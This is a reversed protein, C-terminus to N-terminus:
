GQGGKRPVRVVRMPLSGVFAQAAEPAARLHQAIERTLGQRVLEAASIGRARALTQADRLMATPLSILMRTDNRPDEYSLLWGSGDPTPM